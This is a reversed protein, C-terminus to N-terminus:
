TTQGFYKDAVKEVAYKYGIYSLTAVALTTTVVATYKVYNNM